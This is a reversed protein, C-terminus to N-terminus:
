GGFDDAVSVWTEHGFEHLCCTLDCPYFVSGRCCIVESCISLQFSRVLPQFRGNLKDSVLLLLIPGKIKRDCLKCMIVPWRVGCPLGWEKEKHVKIRTSIPNV